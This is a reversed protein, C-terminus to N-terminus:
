TYSHTNHTIAELLWAVGQEQWYCTLSIILPKLLGNVMQTTAGFLM